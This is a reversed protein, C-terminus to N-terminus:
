PASRYEDPIPINKAPNTDHKSMREVTGDDVLPRLDAELLDAVARDYVEAGHARIAFAVGHKARMAPDAVTAKTWRYLPYTEVGEREAEAVYTEFADLQSVMTANHKALIAALPAPPQGVRASEAQPESLYVRLQYQWQEHERM